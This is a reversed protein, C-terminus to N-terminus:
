AHCFNRGAIATKQGRVCLLTVFDSGAPRHLMEQILAGMQDVALQTTSGAIDDVAYITFGHSAIVQIYREPHQGAAELLKPNFEAFLVLDPNKQLVATAGNLINIEAGEADIKVVDVKQHGNEFFEDMSVMEVEISHGGTESDIIRNAGWNEGELLLKGSARVNWLAKQLACVNGSDNAAISRKLLAFTEPAPEFAYVRGREGVLKSALLTFYGINAGVDVVVDGPKVMQEFLKTLEPEYTQLSLLRFAVGSDRSDVFMKRGQIDVLVVGGPKLRCYVFRGLFMAGPIKRVTAELGLAYVFRMCRAYVAFIYKKM